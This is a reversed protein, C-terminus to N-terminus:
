SQGAVLPREIGGSPLPGPIAEWLGLCSGQLHWSLGVQSDGM